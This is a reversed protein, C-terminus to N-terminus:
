HVHSSRPEHDYNKRSRMRAYGAYIGYLSHLAFSIMMMMMMLTSALHARMVSDQQALYRHVDRRATIKAVKIIAAHLDTLALRTVTCARLFSIVTHCIYTYGQM